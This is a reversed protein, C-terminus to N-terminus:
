SGAALVADPVADPSAPRSSRRLLSFLRFSPGTAGSPPVPLYSTDLAFGSPRLPLAAWLNCGRDLGFPRAVFLDRRRRRGPRCGGSEVHGAPVPENWFMPFLLHREPRRFVPVSRRAALIEDLLQGEVVNGGASVVPEPGAQSGCGPLLVCLAAVILAGPTAHFIMLSSVPM